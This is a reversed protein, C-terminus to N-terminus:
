NGMERFVLVSLVWSICWMSNLRLNAVLHAALQERIEVLDKRRMKSYAAVVMDSDKRVMELVDFLWKEEESVTEVNVFLYDVPEPQLFMFDVAEHLDTFKYSIVPFGIMEIVDELRDLVDADVDVIVAVKLEM